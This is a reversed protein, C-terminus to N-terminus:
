KVLDIRHADVRDLNPHIHKLIPHMHRLISGHATPHFVCVTPQVCTSYGQLISGHVRLRFVHVTPADRERLQGHLHLRLICSKDTQICGGHRAHQVGQQM